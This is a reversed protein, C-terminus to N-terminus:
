GHLEQAARLTLARLGLVDHRNYDLLKTWKGKQVTTLRAYEDHHRLGSAVAQLRKTANGKGLHVPVEYDVGPLSLFEDLSNRTLEINPHFHWRWRKAIALGNKYYRSIDISCVREILSLEYTSLPIICRGEQECDAKLREVVQHLDEVPLGKARAAHKFDSDLVVQKFNGDIFLGIIAPPKDKFGEFDIYIGRQAQDVSIQRMLTHTSPM